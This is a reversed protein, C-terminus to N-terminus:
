PQLKHEEVRRELKEIGYFRDASGERCPEM